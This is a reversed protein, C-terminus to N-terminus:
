MRDPDTVMGRELAARVSREDLAPRDSRVPDIRFSALRDPDLRLPDVRKAPANSADVGTPRTTSDGTAIVGDLLREFAGPDTAPLGGIAPPQVHEDLAWPPLPDPEASGPGGSWHGGPGDPPFRRHRDALCRTIEDNAERIAGSPLGGTKRTDAYSLRDRDTVTIGRDDTVSVSLRGSLGAGRETELVCTSGNVDYTVTNGDHVLTGQGDVTRGDFTWIYGDLPWALLRTRATAVIRYSVEEVTYEASRNEVELGGGVRGGDFGFSPFCGVVPWSETGSEIEVADTVRSRADIAVQPTPRGYTVYELRLRGDRQSCRVKAYRNESTQVAVVITGGFEVGLFQVRTPVRSAPLHRRFATSEYEAQELDVVTLGDFASGALPAMVAASRAYLGPGDPGSRWSLDAGDFVGSRVTGADLDISRGPALSRRTSSSVVPLSADTVPRGGIALADATLDLETLEFGEAAPGLPISLDDVDSLRDAFVDKAIGKAVGDAVADAVVVAVAALVVGAIGGTIAGLAIGALVVYWPFSVDVNPDDMEVRVDIAGDEIELYVRVRFDGTVDFPAGEASGNGEFAGTVDIRGNAIRAELRTVVLTDITGEDSVDLPVPTTLRCPRAFAEPPADLSDSLSPRVIDALLTEADVLVVVPSGPATSATTLDAADREIGDEDAGERTPLLFALADEGNRVLTTEVDIPTTPDDDGGIPIPRPSLPIWEVDDVLLDEVEGQVTGRLLGPFAAHVDNLRDVTEPTFGVEIRDIGDEFDLGVVRANGDTAPTGVAVTEQVLIAGDLDSLTAGGDLAVFAESFPLCLTIQEGSTSLQADSVGWDYRAVERRVQPDREFAMWPTDFLFNVEGSVLTDFPRRIQAPFVDSGAAYLAALQDNYEREAIQVVLDYDGTEYPTRM